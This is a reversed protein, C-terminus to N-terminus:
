PHRYHGGDHCGDVCFNNFTVDGNKGCDYLGQQIHLADATQKADGLAKNIRDTYEGTKMLQQVKGECATYGVLAWCHKDVTHCDRPAIVDRLALTTKARAATRALLTATASSNLTATPAVLATSFPHRPTLM